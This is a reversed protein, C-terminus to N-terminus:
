LPMLTVGTGATRGYLGGGFDGSNPALLCIQDVGVGCAACFRGKNTLLVAIRGHNVKGCCVRRIEGCRDVRCANVSLCLQRRM